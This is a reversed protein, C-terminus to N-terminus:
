EIELITIFNASNRESKPPQSPWGQYQRDIAISYAQTGQIDAREESPPRSIIKVGEDELLDCAYTKSM